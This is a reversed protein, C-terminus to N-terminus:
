SAIVPWPMGQLKPGDGQMLRSLHQRPQRSSPRLGINGAHITCRVQLIIGGVSGLGRLRPPQPDRALRRHDGLCLGLKCRPQANGLRVRVSPEIAQIGISRQRKRRPSSGSGSRRAARAARSPPQGAKTGGVQHRGATAGSIRCCERQSQGGSLIERGRNWPRDGPAAPSTRRPGGRPRDRRGRCRCYRSQPRRAPAGRTQGLAPDYSATADGLAMSSPLDAAGCGSLEAVLGEAAKAGMWGIAYPGVSSGTTANM